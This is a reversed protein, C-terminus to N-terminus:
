TLFLFKVYFFDAELPNKKYQTKKLVSVEILSDKNKLHYKLNLLKM